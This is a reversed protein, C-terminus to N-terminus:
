VTKKILNKGGSKPFFNKKESSARSSSSTKIKRSVKFPLLQQDITREIREREEPGGANASLNKKRRRGEISERSLRSEIV